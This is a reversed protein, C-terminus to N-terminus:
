VAPKRFTSFISLIGWGNWAETFSMTMLIKSTVAGFETKFMLNFQVDTWNSTKSVACKIKNDEILQKLGPMIMKRLCPMWPLWYHTQKLKAKGAEKLEDAYGEILSRGPLTKTTDKRDIMPDSSIILTDVPKGFLRPMFIAADIGVCMTCKHWARGGNQSSEKWSLVWRAM